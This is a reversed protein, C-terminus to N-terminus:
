SSLMYIIAHVHVLAPLFMGEVIVWAMEVHNRGYLFPM